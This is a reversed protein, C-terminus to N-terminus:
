FELRHRENPVAYADGFSDILKENANHILNKIGELLAGGERRITPPIMELMNGIDLMAPDFKEVARIIAGLFEGASESATAIMELARAQNDTLKIRKKILKIDSDLTAVSRATNAGAMAGEALASGVNGMQAMSGAPTSADQQTALLRNFGAAEM